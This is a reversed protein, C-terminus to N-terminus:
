SKKGNLVAWYPTLVFFFRSKKRFNDSFPSFEILFIPFVCGLAEGTPWGRLKERRGTFLFILSFRFIYCCFDEGDDSTAKLLDGFSFTRLFSPFVYLCYVFVFLLCNYLIM